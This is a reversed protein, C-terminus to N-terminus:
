GGVSGLKVGCSSIKGGTLVMELRCWFSPPFLSLLFASQQCLHMEVSSVENQVQTPEPFLFTGSAKSTECKARPCAKSLAPFTPFLKM